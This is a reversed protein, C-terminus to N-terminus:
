DVFVWDGRALKNQPFPRVAVCGLQEPRPTGQTAMYVRVLRLKGIRAGSYDLATLCTGPDPIFGEVPNVLVVLGPGNSDTKLAAVCGLFSYKGRLEKPVIWANGTPEWEFAPKTSADVRLRRQLHWTGFPGNGFPMPAPDPKYDEITSREPESFTSDREVFEIDASVSEPTPSTCSMALLAFVVVFSRM